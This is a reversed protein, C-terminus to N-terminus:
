KALRDLQRKIEATREDIRLLLERDSELKKLRDGHDAIQYQAISFTGAIASLSIIAAVAIYLPIRTHETITNTNSM